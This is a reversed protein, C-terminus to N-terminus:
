TLKMLNYLLYCTYIDDNIIQTCERWNSYWTVDTLSALDWAEKEPM